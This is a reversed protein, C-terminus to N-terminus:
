DALTCPTPGGTRARHYARLFGEQTLEPEPASLIHDRIRQSIGTWGDKVLDEDAFGGTQLTTFNLM